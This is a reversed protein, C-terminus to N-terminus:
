DFRGFNSSEIQLDNGGPDVCVDGGEEVVDEEVGEDLLLVGGGGESDPVEQLHDSLYIGGM